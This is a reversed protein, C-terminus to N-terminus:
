KIFGAGEYIFVTKSYISSSLRLIIELPTNQIWLLHQAHSSKCEHCRGKFIQPNVWSCGSVLLSFRIKHLILDHYDYLFSFSHLVDWIWLVINSSPLIEMLRVMQVASYLVDPEASNPDTAATSSSLGPEASSVLLSWTMIPISPINCDAMFIEM